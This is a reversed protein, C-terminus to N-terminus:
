RDSYTLRAMGRDGIRRRLGKLAGTETKFSRSWSPTLATYPTDPENSDYFVGTLPAGTVDSPGRDSIIDSIM